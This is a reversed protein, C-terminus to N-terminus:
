RLREMAFVIAGGARILIPRHSPPALAAILKWLPLAHEIIDEVILWGGVKLNELAFLLVGINANPTHLGDDIILDFTNGIRQALIDFTQRDTQDVFLTKIRKEEFLIGRDVDAGYIQADPLFDRFARLSAGPRGLEPMHSVYAKDTSGIGIELVASVSDKHGLISGYIWHYGQSAKDSGYEDFLERLRISARQSAETTCLGEASVVPVTDRGTKELYTALLPFTQNVALVTLDARARSPGASWPEFLPFRGLIQSDMDHQSDRESLARKVRVLVSFNKLWDKLRDPMIM